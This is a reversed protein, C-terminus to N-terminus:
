PGTLAPLRVDTAHALRRPLRRAQTSSSSFQGDEEEFATGWGVHRRADTRGGLRARHSMKHRGDVRCGVGYGRCGDPPRMPTAALSSSPADARSTEHAQGRADRTCAAQCNHGSMHGGLPPKPEVGRYSPQRPRSDHTLAHVGRGSPIRCARVPRRPRSGWNDTAVDPCPHEGRDPVVVKRACHVGYPGRRPRSCRGAGSSLGALRAKRAM